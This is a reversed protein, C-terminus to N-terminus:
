AASVKQLLSSSHARWSTLLRSAWTQELSLLCEAGWLVDRALHPEDRVLGGVLDHLAIVEHVSDAEVHEDFFETADGEYGLRRLGGAYRGNPESSTAEFTALHGVAAGRLRRHLGFMSVLNVTALTFGPILDIYAGYEPNLGLAALSRAFLHAHIREPRGGGYEDSQIEVLAAKALGRLRPIVWTHPDAEKLQYASRHIMFERVAGIDAQHEIYGSLSPGRDRAILALLGDIVNVDADYPDSIQLRLAEEFADELGNRFAILGPDWELNPDVGEIATYHLEYCLYLALQLDDDELPAEAQPFEKRVQATTSGRLVAIAYESLPGRPEPLRM